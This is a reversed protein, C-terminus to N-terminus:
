EERMALDVNVLAGTQLTHNPHEERMYRHAVHDLEPFVIAWLKEKAAQDGDTWARLLMTVDSRSVTM